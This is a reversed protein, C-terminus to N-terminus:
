KPSTFFFVDELQFCENIKHTKKKKIVKKSSNMEWSNMLIWERCFLFYIQLMNITYLWVTVSVPILNHEKQNFSYKINQSLVNGDYVFNSKFCWSFFILNNKLALIFCDSKLLKEIILVSPIFKFCKRPAILKRGPWGCGFVFFYNRYM